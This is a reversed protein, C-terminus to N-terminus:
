ANCGGIQQFLQTSAGVLARRFHQQRGGKLIDKRSAKANAQAVLADTVKNKEEIAVPDDISTAALAALVRLGEDDHGHAILWRPSEPLVM